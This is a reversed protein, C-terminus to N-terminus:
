NEGVKNSNLCNKKLDPSQEIKEPTLDSDQSGLKGEESEKKGFGASRFSKNGESEKDKSYRENM